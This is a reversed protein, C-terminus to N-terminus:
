SDSAFALHLTPHHICAGMLRKESQKLHFLFHLISCFLLLNLAIIAHKVLRAHFIYVSKRSKLKKSLHIVDDTSLLAM